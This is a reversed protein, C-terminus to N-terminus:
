VVSKRDAVGAEAINHMETSRIQVEIPTGFPGFLTTHLSQYGNAKSIAIYDKFKGPIPKYLAHLSGLTLYCTPTDKVLVRFGYIDNVQSLKVTKGTMKKYISYLHKERGEVTAEIKAEKLQSKIADLIKSIM